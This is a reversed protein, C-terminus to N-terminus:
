KRGELKERLERALREGEIREEDSIVINDPKYAPLDREESELREDEQPNVHDQWPNDPGLFTSPHMIYTSMREEKRCLNKYNVAAKKLDEPNFGKNKKTNWNRWASQKSVKRPYLNWFEKFDEDAEMDIGNKKEKESLIRDKNMIATMDGPVNLAFWNTSEPKQTTSLNGRVIIGEKLMKKLSARIKNEHLFPFHRLFGMVTMRCWWRDKQHDLNNVTNYHVWEKIKEYLLASEIGYKKAIEGDFWYMM